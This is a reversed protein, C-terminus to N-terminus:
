TSYPVPDGDESLRCENTADSCQKYRSLINSLDIHKTEMYNILWTFIEADCHVQVVVEETTSFESSHKEFYKMESLLLSKKCKFQKTINKNDDSLNIIIDQESCNNPMAEEKLLSSASEEKNKISPSAALKNSTRSNKTDRSLLVRTESDDIKPFNYTTIYYSSPKGKMTLNQKRRNAGITNKHQKNNLSPMASQNQPYQEGLQCYSLTFSDTAALQHAENNSISKWRKGKQKLIRTHTPPNAQLAYVMTLSNESSSARQSTM